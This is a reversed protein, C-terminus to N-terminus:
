LYEALAAVCKDTAGLQSEVYRRAKVGARDRADDDYLLSELRSRVDEQDQVVFAAGTEILRLAEFSNDHVPGVIVPLGEIAPEIVSHVGTSFSGGIYAVDGLRYAEALVGVTDIITVRPPAEGSLRTAACVSLGKSRAWNEIDVIREPLPEHPAIIALLDPHEALLGALAPLLRAEDRPWTSGGVIVKHGHPAFEFGVPAAARKREMVRDFRTDGSVSIAPHSPVSMRFREADSESIALIKNMGAYLSRYFSRGLASFRRSSPSLTADILVVPIRRRHAEWILNPWLDFKVFVLLRPNIQDLCFRANRLFDAPLYDIFKINNDAGLKEKKGAFRLGSPSSFTLVVSLDPHTRNLATIVPRAQEFEGVSAVHFWVPRTELPPSATKWRTRFGKRGAAAERLKPVFLCAAYGVTVAVPLVVANYLLKYLTSGKTM